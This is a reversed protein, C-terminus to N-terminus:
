SAKYFAMPLRARWSAVVSGVSQRGGLERGLQAPPPPPPSPPDSICYDFDVLGM